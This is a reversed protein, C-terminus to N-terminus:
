MSIYIYICMCVAYVYVHMSRHIYEGVWGVLCKRVESPPQQRWLTLSISTSSFPSVASAAEGFSSSFFASSAASTLASASAGEHEESIRPFVVQADFIRPFVVEALRVVTYPISTYEVFPVSEVRERLRSSSSSSSSSFSSSSSVSPFAKPTFAGASTSLTSMRRHIELQQQEQQQQQQYLAMHVAQMCIYM